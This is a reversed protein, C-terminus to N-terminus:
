RYWYTAGDFEVDSYDTRINAATAEWDIEIYSPIERPMDGIDTVLEQAYETFYGDRILTIPYWDGEWQHDGGYGRIDDLLSELSALEAADDPHTDAWKDDDGSCETWDDRAERLEEVRDTIDRVDIIDDSSTIDTM